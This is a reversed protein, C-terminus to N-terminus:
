KNRYKKMIGDMEKFASYDFEEPIYLMSERMSSKRQGNISYSDVGDDSINLEVFKPQNKSLILYKIRELPIKRNEYETTDRTIVEVMKYPKTKIETKYINIQHKGEEFTQIKYDTANMTTLKGIMDFDQLVMKYDVRKNNEVFIDAEEKYKIITKSEKKLYQHLLLPKNQSQILSSLGIFLLTIYSKM